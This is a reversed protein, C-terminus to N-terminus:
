ASERESFSDDDGTEIRDWHAPAGVVIQGVVTDGGREKAEYMLLDAGVVLGEVSDPPNRYTAVGISATVPHDLGKGAEELISRVRELVVLASRADTDPLLLLFRDGGVRSFVDTSRVSASVASAFRVLLDDGLDRGHADNIHRFEDFDIYAVSLFQGDRGARLRAHEAVTDFGHRSLAGTLSDYAASRQQDILADHVRAVGIATLAAVVLVIAATSAAATAPVQALGAVGTAVAAAAAVVVAGARSGIWAVGAVVVVYLVSVTVDGGLTLDVAGVAAVVALGAVPTLVRTSHDARGSEQEAGPRSDADDVTTTATHPEIAAM